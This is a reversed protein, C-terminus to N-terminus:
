HYTTEIFIRKLPEDYFKALDEEIQEVYTSTVGLPSQWQLWLRLLRRSYEQLWKKKGIDSEVNARQPYRLDTGDVKTM